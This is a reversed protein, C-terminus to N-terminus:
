VKKRLYTVDYDTLGARDYWQEIQDKRWYTSKPTAFVDFADNLKVDFPFRVYYSLPLLRALGATLKFKSLSTYLRNSLEVGLTPLYCLYYLVRHPIHRTIMRVPEFIFRAAKNHKEGYVWIGMTGGSKVLPVLSRFGEEPDPLHHLVGISFVYDFVGKKFPPHYIDAQVIHVNDLHKTNAYSAEASDSFDMGIVERAGFEATWYTHRGVGCGADLVIKDRFFTKDLPAIYNLFNERYADFMKHFTNWEFGFSQSTKEKLETEQTLTFRPITGIIPFQQGCPCILKGEIIEEKEKKDVQLRMSHLCEPCALLQLLREKM